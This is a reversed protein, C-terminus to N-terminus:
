RGSPTRRPVIGARSDTFAGRDVAFVGNVIVADIGTSYHHPAAFTARAAPMGTMKHVGHELTLRVCDDGAPAAVVSSM